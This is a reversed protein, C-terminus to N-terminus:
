ADVAVDVGKADLRELIEDRHALDEEDPDRYRVFLEINRRGAAEVQSGLGLQPMAVARRAKLQSKAVVPYFYAAKQMGDGGEEEGDDDGGDGDREERDHLAIAVEQYPTEVLLQQLGTEYARINRLKFCPIEEGDPHHHDIDTYLEASDKEADRVDRKRKMRRSQAEDDPMYFELNVTPRQPAPHATPNAKHLVLRANYDAQIDPDPEESYLLATELREDFKHNIETPNGLFKIVAYGGTDDETLSNLDPILPYSDVVRLHPKSPHKPHKWAETEPLSATLGRIQTETDPGTYVSSPNAVDFGKIASRLIHTPDEKSTDIKRRKIQGRPGRGGSEIRTRDEAVYQTRRLFSIEGM